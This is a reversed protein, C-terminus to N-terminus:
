IHPDQSLMIQADLVWILAPPEAAGKCPNHDRGQVIIPMKSAIISRYSLHSFFLFSGEENEQATHPAPLSNKQPVLVQLHRLLPVDEQNHILLMVVHSSIHETPGKM